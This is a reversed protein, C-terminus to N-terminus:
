KVSGDENWEKKSILEGDNYNKEYEKQGNEYWSTFLGDEKGDKIMVKLEKQGNKHYLVYPGSYIQELIHQNTERIYYTGDVVRIDITISVTNIKM